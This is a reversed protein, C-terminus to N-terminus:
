CQARPATCWQPCSHAYKGTFAFDASLAVELDECLNGDIEEEEAIELDSEFETRGEM